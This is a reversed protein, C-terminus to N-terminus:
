PQPSGAVVHFAQIELARLGEFAGIDLIAMSRPESVEEYSMIVLRDHLDPSFLGYSGKGQGNGWSEEPCSLAPSVWLPCTM